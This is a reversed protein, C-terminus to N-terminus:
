PPNALFLANLAIQVAKKASEQSVGAPSWIITGAATPFQQWTTRPKARQQKKIKSSTPQQQSCPATQRVEIKTDRQKQPLPFV